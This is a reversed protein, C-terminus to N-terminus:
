SVLALLREIRQRDAKIEHLQQIYVQESLHGFVYENLLNEAQSDLKEQYLCLQTHRIETHPYEPSGVFRLITERGWGDVLILYETDSIRYHLEKQNRQQDNLMAVIMPPVDYRATLDTANPQQSYQLHVLCTGLDDENGTWDKVVIREVLRETDEPSLMDVLQQTVIRRITKRHQHQTKMIHNERVYRAPIKETEYNVHM